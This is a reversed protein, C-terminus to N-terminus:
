ISVWLAGTTSGTVLFEIALDAALLGNGGQNLPVELDRRQRDQQCLRRLCAGNQILRAHTCWPLCGM